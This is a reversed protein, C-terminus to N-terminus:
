NIRSAKFTGQLIQSYDYNSGDLIFGYNYGATVNISATGSHQFQDYVVSDWLEYYVRGDPGDAFARAHARADFWSHLGSYEYDFTITETKTALTNTAYTWEGSFSERTDYNFQITNSDIKTVSPNGPGAALWAQDGFPTNAGNNRAQESYFGFDFIFSKGQIENSASPDLTVEFTVNLPGPTFPPRTGMLVPENQLPAYGSVLLSSLPGNFLQVNTDPIMVKVNAKQIFEDYAAGSTLGTATRSGGTPLDQTYTDRVTAKLGKLKADLSGKNTLIMARQVTDGPAWGGLSEGSPNVKSTDYPHNGDPDLSNPYFMPGPTYDGHNRKADLNITGAAATSTNQASSTYLAMTAGGFTFVVTMTLSLVMVGLKKRNM